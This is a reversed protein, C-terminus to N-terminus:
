LHKELLVLDDDDDVDEDFVFVLHTYKCMLNFRDFRQRLLVFFIFSVGKESREQM